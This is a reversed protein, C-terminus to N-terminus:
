FLAEGVDEPPVFILAPLCRDYSRVDKARKTNLKSVSRMLRGFLAYADLDFYCGTITASPYSTAFATM